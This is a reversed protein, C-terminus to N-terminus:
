TLSAETYQLVNQESKPLALPSKWRGTEIDDIQKETERVTHATLPELYLFFVVAYFLVHLARPNRVLCSALLRWVRGRIAPRRVTVEWLINRLRRADRWADRVFVALGFNPRPLPVVTRRVRDFFTDADYVTSLVEMHDRLIDARPRATEFNLGDVCLGGSVRDSDVGVGPHLRGERQLRRTLETNAYAKLRGIMAVPLGCDEICRIVQSAIRGRESDFGVVFGGIVFIGSANIRRVSEAISRRTNQKKSMQVLTETDPSEIGVFIAFFNADRLLQLLQVDDSLNISAETSLMFPYNHAKQWAILHPLFEKVAKKNGILNDDVFDVHGRYGLAYLADLEALMQRPSKTRPVRGYLEIIDCFECTFPCGRSFQVGIYLYDDFKLLDFRPIPTRRVDAQFKPAEFCGQREGRTWAAIFAPLADEAEGVVRFDADAYVHPSSTVDPGGVVVPINRARCIEIVDHTDTQQAFMGGTMVMDAWALDSATLEETNRNILRVDWDAPLMAAVTILGLPAAPYRAGVVHLVGEFSWFSKPNFRPFVMLVNCKSTRAM